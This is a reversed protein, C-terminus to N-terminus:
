SRTGDTVTGHDLDARRQPDGDDRRRPCLAQRQGSVVEDRPSRGLRRTRALRSEVVGSALDDPRVYALARIICGGGQALNRALNSGMVALGTVGSTPWPPPPWPEPGRAGAGVCRSPRPSPRRDRTIAGKKNGDVRMIGSTTAFDAFNWVHEGVVADFSDFVRHNMDLYEVQYEESWPQPTLSHNGSLTDAGHEAIVIPKGESAWGELEKTWAIEAGDLDGTNVYWGYCRNLMLVDAFQSVRCTGHPALMVNVFGVPRTPDAERAM